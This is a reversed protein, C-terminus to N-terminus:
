TMIRLPTVQGSEVGDSRGTERLGFQCRRQRQAIKAIHFGVGAMFLTGCFEAPQDLVVVM